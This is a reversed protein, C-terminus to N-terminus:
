FRLIHDGKELTLTKGPGYFVQEGNLSPLTYGLDKFSDLDVIIKVGPPITLSMEGKGASLKISLRLEGHVTPFSGSIEPIGSQTLSLGIEQMGPSLPELGFIYKVILAPPFASETQADSRTKKQLKGTRGTGDVFWEEWLTQNTGPLLMKDFRERFQRFSEEVYGAECIGKHLFYSMAPTVMTMGSERLIYNHDDAKLLQEAILKSQQNDAIDLALAMANSHESFHDSRKGNILADSFCGRNQDWLLTHMSERLREARQLYIESNELKLWELIEAYDELAGLYHGNLNFIAGRRDIRAHDLWYAFAPNNIMGTEDTYTHFLDMLKEAAALLERVTQYDGSYLLYNRLSRIWLCNSDFIVMYDDGALPAYAPMIGNAKQEQAVQILYRRQLALDGFTWYNGLAAYYGTQAYQRRERYNDTYGDTTCVDLTKKSAEWYKEIWENGPASVTGTNKFPYQTRTIGLHQIRTDSTSNRIAIAIYRAPKFYTAEWPDVDGSLIVRDLCNADVIRHTFTEELIYPASMIDVVTGEAGHIELRPYGITIEGFDLLLVQSKEESSGSILVSGDKLQMVKAKRSKGSSIDELGALPINEIEQLIETKPDERLEM